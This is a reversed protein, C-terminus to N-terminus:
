KRAVITAHLFGYGRQRAGTLALCLSLAL